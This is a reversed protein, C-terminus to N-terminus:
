ARGTAARRHGDRVPADGLGASLDPGRLTPEAQRLLAAFAGVLLPQDVNVVGRVHHTAAYTTALVGGYSHGVVVPAHLGAETM